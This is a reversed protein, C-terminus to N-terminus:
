DYGCQHVHIRAEIHRLALTKSIVQYFIRTSAINIFKRRSKADSGETAFLDLLGFVLLWNSPVFNKCTNWAFERFSSRAGHLFRGPARISFNETFLVFRTQLMTVCDYYLVKVRSPDLTVWRFIFSRLFM